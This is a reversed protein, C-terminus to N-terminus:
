LKKGIKSSQGGIIKTSSVQSFGCGEEVTLLRGKIKSIALPPVSEKPKEFDPFLVLSPLISFKANAKSLGSSDGNDNSLTRSM